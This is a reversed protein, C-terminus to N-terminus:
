KIIFDKSIGKALSLQQQMNLILQMLHKDQPYYKVIKKLDMQSIDSLKKGVRAMGMTKDLNENLLRKEKKYELEILLKQRELKEINLELDKTDSPIKLNVEHKQKEIENLKDVIQDPAVCFDIYLNKKELEIKSEFNKIQGEIQKKEKGNYFWRLGQKKETLNEIQYYLSM